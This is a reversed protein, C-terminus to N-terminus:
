AERGWLWDLSEKSVVTGQTQRILSALSDPADDHGKSEPSYDLIQNLYEPDTEPDFILDQWEAYLYTQIKIEKNEKEAYTITPLGMERLDRACYGHDGNTELFIERVHYKGCATKIFGYWDMVNGGYIFGIVNKGAKITLACYDGGGSSYAADLHASVTIGPNRWAEVDMPGYQPDQFLLSDDSIFELSYNCAWLFPNTSRRKDAEEEPTLMNFQEIPYKKIETIKAIESFADNRHWPTGTIIKVASPDAVNALVERLYEKTTEREAPSTRDKLTVVDDAILVDCHTGTISNGIGYAALNGEPTKTSKFNFSLRGNGDITKAPWVGHAEYFLAQLEPKDFASSIAQVMAAADTFTKRILIIRANPRFLLYRIIGVLIISTSKYSGRYSQLCRLGPGVDWTSTIWENHLDRLKAYGLLKGLLIPTQKVQRAYDLNM